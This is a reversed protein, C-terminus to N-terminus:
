LNLQSRYESPTMGVLSKFVKTYYNSDLFGVSTSIEKVSQNTIRLKNKSINIRHENLYSTFSQGVEKKFISSLYASNLGIAEAVDNLQLPKQYNEKIYKQALFVPRSYRSHICQETQLFLERIRSLLINMYTDADFITNLSHNLEQKLKDTDHFGRIKPDNIEFFLVPIHQIFIRMRHQSLQDPSLQFLKRIVDQFAKYNLTDFANRLDHSFTGIMNQIEYNESHTHDQWNIIRDTGYFLRLWLMDSGERISDIIEDARRHVAGTCITVWFDEPLFLNKVVTFLNQIVSPLQELNNESFNLLVQFKYNDDTVVVDSCVPLLFRYILQEVKATLSHHFNYSELLYFDHCDLKLILAQYLPAFFHTGYISNIKEVPLPHYPLTRAAEKIFYRRSTKSFSPNSRSCIDNLARRLASRDIPHLLFGDVKQQIAEYAYNFDEKESVLIFHCPLQATRSCRMVEIGNIDPLDIDSIVVDPNENFIMNLLQNGNESTGIVSFDCGFSEVYSTITELYGTDKDAIIIRHSM